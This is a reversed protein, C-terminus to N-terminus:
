YFSNKLGVPTELPIYPQGGYNNINNFQNKCADIKHSCGQSIQVSSGIDLDKTTGSLILRTDSLTIDLIGRREAGGTANVWEVIGGLYNGPTAVWVPPLDIANAMVGIITKTTTFSAKSAGCKSGYLIHPCGLQYKRRLGTRNLSNSVPNCSLEVLDGNRKWSSIAGIWVALYEGDSVHGQFITLGIVKSPPYDKILPVLPNSYDIAVNLMTKDSTGNVVVKDRNIETPIYTKGNFAIAEEGSCFAFYETPQSGYTILYLNVLNGKTRSNEIATFSM